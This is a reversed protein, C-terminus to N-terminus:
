TKGQTKPSKKSFLAVVFPFTFYTSLIKRLYYTLIYLFQVILVLFRM